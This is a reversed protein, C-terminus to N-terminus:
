SGFLAFELRLVVNKRIIVVRKRNLRITTHTSIESFFMLKELRLDQQWLSAFVFFSIKDSSFYKLVKFSM